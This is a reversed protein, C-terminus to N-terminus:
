EEPSEESDSDDASEAEETEDDKEINARTVVVSVVVQDHDDGQGLEPIRVGKPLQLDSMHISDGLNMNLVDVAIFEPLDGPLCSISLSSMVHSVMGGDQKVGVCEEANLFHLPVDVHIEQDMKVRQFDAHM